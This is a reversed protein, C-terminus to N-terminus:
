GEEEGMGGTHLVEADLCTNERDGGQARWQGISTEGIDNEKRVSTLSDHCQVNPRLRRRMDTLRTYQLLCPSPHYPGSIDEIELHSADLNSMLKSKIDEATVGSDEAM